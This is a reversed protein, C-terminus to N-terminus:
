SRARELMQARFGERLKEVRPGRRITVHEGQREVELYGNAALHALLRDKDGHFGEPLRPFRNVVFCVQEGGNEAILGLAAFLM